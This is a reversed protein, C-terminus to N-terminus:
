LLQNVPFINKQYASPTLGTFSKFDRIFHSQDFYGCEYAISTFTLKNAAVLKLSFQFRNIKTFSTPSLGTNQYVLKHLYRTTIGHRSAIAILDPDAANKGLSSLIHAVKNIRSSKNQNDRLKRWLFMEVLEIRRNLDNFELLQAHLIKVSPGLIDALDSVQDNFSRIEDNFFYAASHPFFKIGLMIHRGRSKIALPQTIQGWLEAPPTKSFRNGAAFEWVGDGLNFIMEMDGSPFVTDEFALDSESEFVYYHRIYPSLIESPSFQKFEM